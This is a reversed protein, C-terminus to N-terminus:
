GGEGAGATSKIPPLQREWGSKFPFSVSSGSCRPGSVESFISATLTKSIYYVYSIQMYINVCVTLLLM